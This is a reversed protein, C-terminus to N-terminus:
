YKILKANCHKFADEEIIEVSSPIEVVKVYSGYFSLSTICTVGNPITIKEVDNKRSFLVKNDVIILDQLVNDIYIDANYRIQKYFELDIHVLSKPLYIQKLNVAQQILNKGSLIISKVGEEIIITNASYNQKGDKFHYNSIGDVVGPFTLIKASDTQSSINIVQNKKNLTCTYLKKLDNITYEALGVDLDMDRELSEDYKKKDESSFNNIIDLVFIKQELLKDDKFYELAEYCDELSILKNEIFFDACKKNGERVLIRKAHVISSKKNRLLKIFNEKDDFEDFHEVIYSVGRMILQISQGKLFGANNFVLEKVGWLVPYPLLSEKVAKDINIIIKDIKVGKAVKISICEDHVEITKINTDVIKIHTMHRPILYYSEMPGNYKFASM